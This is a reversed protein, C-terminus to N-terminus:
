FGHSWGCFMKGNRGDVLQLQVLCPCIAWCYLNVPSDDHYLALLRVGVSAWLTRQKLVDCCPNDHARDEDRATNAM